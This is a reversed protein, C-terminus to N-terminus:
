QISVLLPLERRRVEALTLNDTAAVDEASHELVLEDRVVLDHARWVDVAFDDFEVAAARVAFVQEVDVLRDHFDEVLCLIARM